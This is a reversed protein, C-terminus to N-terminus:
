LEPTAQTRCAQPASTETPSYVHFLIEHTLFHQCHTSVTRGAAASNQAAAVSCAAAPVATFVVAAGGAAVSDSAGAAVVSAGAEVLSSAGVAVDESAAAVVVAPDPAPITPTGNINAPTRAM